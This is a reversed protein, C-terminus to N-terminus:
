RAGNVDSGGPFERWFPAEVAVSGTKSELTGDALQDDLFGPSELSTGCKVCSYVTERRFDPIRYHFDCIPCCLM